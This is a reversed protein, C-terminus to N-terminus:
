VIWDGFLYPSRGSSILFAGGNTLGVDVAGCQPVESLIAEELMADAGGARGM